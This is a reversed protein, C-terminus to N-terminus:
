EGNKNNIYVIEVKHRSLSFLKVTLHATHAFFEFVRYAIQAIKCLIYRKKLQIRAIYSFYPIFRGISMHRRIKSANCKSMPRLFLVGEANAQLTQFNLLDILRFLNIANKASVYKLFNKNCPKKLRDVRLWSKDITILPEKM